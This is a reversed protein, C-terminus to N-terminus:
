SDFVYYYLRNTDEDFAAVTWNQPGTMVFLWYGNEIEPIAKEESNPSDFTGGWEYYYEYAADTLPYPQWKEKISEKFSEDMSLVILSTGDGHFGGHTDWAEIIEGSSLDLSLAQEAEQKLDNDLGLNLCGRSSIFMFFVVMYAVIKRM